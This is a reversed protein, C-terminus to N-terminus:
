VKVCNGSGANAFWDYVALMNVFTSKATDIILTSESGSSLTACRIFESNKICNGIYEDSDSSRFGQDSDIIYTEGEYGIGGDSIHDGSVQVSSGALQNCVWIEAQAASSLLLAALLLSKKM